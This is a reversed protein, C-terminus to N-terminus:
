TPPRAAGGGCRGVCSARRKGAPTESQDAIPWTRLYVPPNRRTHYGHHECQDELYRNLEGSTRPGTTCAFYGTGLPPSMSSSTALEKLNKSVAGKIKSAGTAVSDTPQLSALLALEVGDAEVNLIRIGPREAEIGAPRIQPFYRNPRRRSGVTVHCGGGRPRGVHLERRCAAPMKLRTQRPLTAYPVLTFSGGALPPCRRRTQPPLTAYPFLTFSGGALPPCRAPTRPCSTRLSGVHFERRCAAPMQPTNTRATTAYPFLTFSGGALPPCRPTTTRTADHTPFWRSVGAPLRRADPSNHPATTAYPLWRSVGAPLRRADRRQQAPCDNRLSGVHFERRCAAPMQPPQAPRRQTPFWRSVGAPLRRADPPTTRAANRLSGVHFERRCAAPMEAHDAPPTAYPALTFSGGALPPCRRHHHPAATRLSGVHFERRCAAPMEAPRHPCRALSGVHFERRCAAPMKAPSFCSVSRKSPLQPTDTSDPFVRSAMDRDSDFQRIVFIPTCGGLTSDDSWDSCALGLSWWSRPQDHRLRTEPKARPAQVMLQDLTERLPRAADPQLEVLRHNTEPGDRWQNTGNEFIHNHGGTHIKWFDAESRVGFLVGIPDWSPRTKREGLYLEYVRRVPNDAPTEQLRGGTHIDDGLGTFYIPGPWDRAAIVASSPDPKFNGFVGPNLHEPYRGGMCVWRSVKQRVLAPGGLPSIADPKSALLDRLNTLYGVTVIVVSGDDQAPWCAAISM